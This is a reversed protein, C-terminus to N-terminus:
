DDEGMAMDIRGVYDAAIYADVARMINNTHDERTSYQAIYPWVLEFQASETLLGSPKRRENRHIHGGPPDPTEDLALAELAASNCWTSHLDNAKIFIPRPDIGDLM